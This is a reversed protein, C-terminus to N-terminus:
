NREVLLSLIEGVKLAVFAVVFMEVGGDVLQSQAPWGDRFALLVVSIATVILAGGLAKLVKM